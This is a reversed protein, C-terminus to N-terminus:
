YIEISSTMFLDYEIDSDDELSALTSDGHKLPKKKSRMDDVARIIQSERNFLKM